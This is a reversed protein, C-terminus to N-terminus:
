LRTTVASVLSFPSGQPIKRKLYEMEATTPIFTKMYLLLSKLVLQRFEKALLLVSIFLYIPHSTKPNTPQITGPCAMTNPLYRKTSDPDQQGHTGSVSSILSDKTSLSALLFFFLTPSPVPPSFYFPSICFMCFIKTKHFYVKNEQIFM